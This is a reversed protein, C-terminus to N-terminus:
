GVDRLTEEVIQDLDSNTRFQELWHDLESKKFLWAKGVKFGPPPHPGSVQYQLWRPSKGLYRAADALSFHCDTIHARM